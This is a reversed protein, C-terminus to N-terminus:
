RIPEDENKMIELYLILANVFLYNYSSTNNMHLYRSESFLHNFSTSDFYPANIDVIEVSSYAVM